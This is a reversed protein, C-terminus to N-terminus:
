SSICWQLLIKISDLIYFFLLTNIYHVACVETEKKREKGGGRGDFGMGGSASIHVDLRTNEEELSGLLAAASLFGGFGLAHLVQRGDGREGKLGRSGECGVARTRSPIAKNTRM